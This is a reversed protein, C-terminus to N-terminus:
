IVPFLGVKRCLRSPTTLSSLNWLTPSKRARCFTTTWVWTQSPLNSFRTMEWLTKRSYPVQQIFDIVPNSPSRSFAGHADLTISRNSSFIFSTTFVKIQLQQQTFYTLPIWLQIDTPSMQDKKRIKNTCGPLVKLVMSLTLGSWM